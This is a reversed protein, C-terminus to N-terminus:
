IECPRFGLIKEFRDAYRPWAEPNILRPPMRGELIDIWQEAAQLSLNALADHTIGAIHPTIVVNDFATLPHDTPPPESLFVDIAAGAIRKENLAKVLGDESYTGGRSTNVFHATPKMQAFQEYGMLKLTEETRPCHMTVFDSRALLDDLDTKIAGKASVQATTLYPDYALVPMKFLGSCLEAVRTGINGLGIIGVTKGLIDTGVHKFRNLDKERRMLRDTKTIQKSVNLMFGLTHEAVAEKNAGAQHCAIIGAKSCSDIDIVDYGAGLSCIALLNPSRAILADNPFWPTELETRAAVHYGHASSMKAWAEDERKPDARTMAINSNRIAVRKSTDDLQPEFYTIRRLNSSM